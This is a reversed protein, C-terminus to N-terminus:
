ERHSYLLFCGGSDRVYFAICVDPNVGRAQKNNAWMRALFEGSSTDFQEVANWLASSGPGIVWAGNFHGLVPGM